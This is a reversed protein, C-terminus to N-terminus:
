LGRYRAGAHRPIPFSWNVFFLTALITGTGNSSFLNRRRSDIGPVSSQASGTVRSVYGGSARGPWKTGLAGAFGLWARSTRQNGAVWTVNVGTTAGQGAHGRDGMGQICRRVVARPWNGGSVGGALCDCVPRHILGCRLGTCRWGGRTESRARRTRAGIM